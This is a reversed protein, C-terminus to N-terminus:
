KDAGLDGDYHMRIKAFKISKNKCFIITKVNKKSFLTKNNLKYTYFVCNGYRHNM